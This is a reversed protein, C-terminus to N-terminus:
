ATLYKPQAVFPHDGAADTYHGVIRGLNNIGTLQTNAAGPVDFTTLKGHDYVFGHDVALGNVAQAYYGVVKGLDNIASPAIYFAGPADITKFNGNAYLFGHEALSSDYYTGVIKGLDNVANASTYTSGPAAITKFAGGTELFGFNDGGINYSGVAQGLNNIGNATTSGGGAGATASGGNPDSIPTVTGNSLVFGQTGGHGNGQSGVIEGRDNIGVGYVGLPLNSFSGHDDEFAYVGTIRGTRSYATDIGVIQGLDNIALTGITLGPDPLSFTDIAYKGAQNAGSMANERNAAM